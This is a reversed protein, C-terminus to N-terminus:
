FRRWSSGKKVGKRRVKPPDYILGSQDELRNMVDNIIDQAKDLREKQYTTLDPSKMAEGIGMYANHLKVMAGRIRLVM